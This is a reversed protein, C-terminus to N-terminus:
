DGLIWLLTLVGSYTGLKMSQEYVEMRRQYRLDQFWAVTPVRQMKTAVIGDHFCEWAASDQHIKQKSDIWLGSSNDKDKTRWWAVRGNESLVVICNERQEEVFRIASVTLSTAFKEALNKIASLSPEISRCLPRLLSSPMLLEGAFTNAEIEPNSGSYNRLDTETCVHFQSIDGHLEWHGLEHAVAFKKRGDSQIDDRVRIIGRDKRRVLRAECGRLKGELVLVGQAMAIDEVVIESPDAIAFKKILASAAQRASEFNDHKRLSM